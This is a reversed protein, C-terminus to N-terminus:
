HRLFCVLPFYNLQVFSLSLLIIYFSFLSLSSLSEMLCLLMLIIPTGSLSSLSFAASFKNSSIIASFKGLRPFSVSIWIWSACLNGGWFEVWPPGNCSVRDKFHCFSTINKTTTTLCCFFVTVICPSGM